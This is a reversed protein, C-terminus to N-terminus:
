AVVEQKEDNYFKAIFAQFETFQIEHNFPCGLEKAAKKDTIKIVKGNEESRFGMAKFKENLLHTMQPRTHLVGEDLELFKQLKKPVPYPKNFGGKGSNGTKRTKSAKAMDHKFTKGFKALHVNLEKQLKKRSSLYEKKDAEYLKDKQNFSSDLEELGALIQSFEDFLETSSQKPKLAKHETEEVEIEDESLQNEDIENIENDSM